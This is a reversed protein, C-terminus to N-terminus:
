NTCPMPVGALCVGESSGAPRWYETKNGSIRLGNGELVERWSDLHQEVELRSEECVSSRSCLANDM